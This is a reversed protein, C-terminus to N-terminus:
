SDQSFWRLGEPSSLHIKGRALNICGKREFEKLLRSVVERTTGLEHAINEHTINLTPNQNREFLHGLLCALRMDLNQFVTAEVFHLIDCFRDTIKKLILNRFVDSVQMAKQFDDHSLMQVTISSESKAIAQFPQQTVLSNLSLMCLGGASIRYLTIERGDESPQFVRVTGDTLMVFHQCCIGRDMLVTEAPIVMRRARQLINMWETSHIGEFEPYAAFLEQSVM